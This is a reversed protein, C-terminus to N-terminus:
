ALSRAGRKMSRFLPPPPLLPPSACRSTKGGVGEGEKSKAGVEGRSWEENGISQLRLLWCQRRKELASEGSAGKM